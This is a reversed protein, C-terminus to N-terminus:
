CVTGGPLSGGPMKAGIPGAYAVSGPTGVGGRGSTEAGITV